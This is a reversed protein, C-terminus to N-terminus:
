MSPVGKTVELIFLLKNIQNFVSVYYNETTGIHGPNFWVHYIGSSKAVEEVSLGSEKAMFGMCTFVVLGAYFATFGDTLVCM